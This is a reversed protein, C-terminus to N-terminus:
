AAGGAHPVVLQRLRKLATRQRTKVTGLPLDLAQAIERQTFGGYVSMVIVERQPEPLSGLALTAQAVAEAEAAAELPGPGPQPQGLFEPPTDRRVKKRRGQDRAVNLGIRALWTSLRYAPDFRDLAKFARLFTEQVLDETGTRDGTQRYILENLMGQYRLVILRFAERDGGLVRRVLEREDPAAGPRKLTPTTPDM